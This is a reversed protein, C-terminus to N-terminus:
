RKWWITLQVANETYSPDPVNSDRENRIAEARWGWHRSLQQNVGVSYVHDTDQQDFNLFRRKRYSGSVFLSLLPRVRYDLMVIAGRETRDADPRDLYTLRRYLPRARLTFRESNFRYSMDVARQRYVGATVLSSSPDVLDPVLAEDPDSLRVVMDQVQDSFERRVRLRLRSHQTPHWEVIARAITTSADRAAERDLRSHGLDIQLETDRLRREYRVFGDNRQYDITGADDFEAKTSAAHLSAKSTSSLDRQLAAAASYRQGDFGPSVEAHSDAGRVDLQFRTADGLRAFFSPGAIFINVQQLNGPYRGARFNISEESLYDEVVFNLRQPLLSWNLQGAFEGRSEDDFRDNVYHRREFHGRAELEVTAGEEKVDFRLRPILVAESVENDESLNLNDSHLGTLELQYNIRAALANGAFTAM